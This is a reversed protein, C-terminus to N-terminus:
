PRYIAHAKSEQTKVYSFFFFSTVYYDLFSTVHMYTDILNCLFEEKYM